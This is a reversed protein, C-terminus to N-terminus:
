SITIRILSKHEKQFNGNKYTLGHTFECIDSYVYSIITVSSEYIADMAQRYLQEKIMANTLM